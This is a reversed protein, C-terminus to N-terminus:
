KEKKKQKKSKDLVQVNGCVRCVWENTKIRSYGFLSGCKDCSPKNKQKEKAMNRKQKRLILEM